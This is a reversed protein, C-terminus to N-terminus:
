DICRMLLDFRRISDKPKARIVQTKNRLWQLVHYKQQVDNFPHREAGLLGGLLGLVGGWVAWSGEGLGEQFPRFGPWRQSKGRPVIKLIGMAFFRRGLGTKGFETFHKPPNQSGFRGGFRGWSSGLVVGLRTFFGISFHMTKKM